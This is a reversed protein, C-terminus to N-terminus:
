RASSTCRPPWRKPLELFHAFSAACTLWVIASMRVAEGPASLIMTREATTPMRRERLWRTSLAFRRRRIILLAPVGALVLVILTIGCRVILRQTEVPSLMIPAAFSLFAFVFVAGCVSVVVAGFVWLKFTVCRLSDTCPKTLHNWQAGADRIGARRIVGPPSTDTV